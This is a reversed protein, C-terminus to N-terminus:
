VKAPAKKPIDVSPLDATPPKPASTAAQAGAKARKREHEAIAGLAARLTIESPTADAKAPALKHIQGACWASEFPADLDVVYGEGGRYRQAPGSLEEPWHLARDPLVQMLNM